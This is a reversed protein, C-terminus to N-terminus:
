SFLCSLFAEKALAIIDNFDEMLLLWNSSLHLAIDHLKYSAKLTVYQCDTIGEPRARSLPETGHMGPLILRATCMCILVSILLVKTMRM